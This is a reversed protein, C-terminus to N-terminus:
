TDINRMGMFYTNPTTLSVNGYIFNDLIVGAACAVENYYKDAKFKTSIGVISIVFIISLFILTFIGPCIIQCKTYPM